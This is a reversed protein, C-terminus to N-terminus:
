EELGVELHIKDKNIPLWQLITPLRPVLELKVGKLQPLNHIQKLAEAPRKGAIKDLIETQSIIPSLRAKVLVEFAVKGENVLVNTIEIELDSVSLTFGDPIADRLKVLLLDNLYKEEVSLATIEATLDLSVSEAEGDVPTSLKEEIPKATLTEVFVRKGDARNNMEAMAEEKLQALLDNRLDAIDKKAVVAVDKKTGGGFVAENKAVYTSKSFAGVQFETGADLNSETGISDAVVSGEAKGPTITKVMNGDVSELAMPITVENDLVFKLNDATLITGAAFIKEGDTRLNYITIKGVAKDGVMKIGSVNKQQSASKTLKVETAPLVGKETDVSNANSDIIISVKQNLSQGNFTLFINAKTLRKASITIGVMALGLISLVFILVLKKGSLFEWNFRPFKFRPFKIKPFRIKRKPMAEGYDASAPKEEISEEIKVDEIVHKQTEPDPKIDVTFGLSKAVEAGGAVAIATISFVNEAPEINPLHLFPLHEQWDFAMMQQSVDNLDEGGDYLIMRTPLSEQDGFRTLGERVDAALDGSRGVVHTGEIKGVRAITVAAETVSTKILIATLPTGEKIKLYHAIAETTVVFGLPKFAMRECLTKLDALRAPVVGETLVWTEPLGFIVQDPDKGFDEPLQELAQTLSTDVAELLIETSNGDWEQTSGVTVLKTAQEAVKWVATKVFEADIQVAM